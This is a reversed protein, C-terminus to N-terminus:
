QRALAESAGTVLAVKQNSMTTRRNKGPSFSLQGASKSLRAPIPLLTRIYLVILHVSDVGHAEERSHHLAPAEGSRSQVQLQRPGGGGFHQLLEFGAQAHPQRLPSSAVDRWSEVALSIVEAVEGPRGPGPRTMGPWPQLAVGDVEVVAVDGVRLPRRRPWRGIARAAPCLYDPPTFPRAMDFSLSGTQPRSMLRGALLRRRCGPQLARPSVRSAIAPARCTPSDCAVRACRRCSRQPCRRSSLGGPASRRHTRRSDARRRGRHSSNRASPSSGSSVTTAQEGSRAPRGRRRSPAVCRRRRGSRARHGVEEIVM